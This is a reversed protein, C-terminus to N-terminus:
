KLLSARLASMGIPPGIGGQSCGDVPNAFISATGNLTLTSVVLIFCPYGAGSKNVAGSMTLDAKPLYVLGSIDWTPTGGAYTLNVGSTLAPDQMVAIGQWTGSSPAAINLRGGGTPYHGPTLGAVPSGSFVITLGAGSATSLTHGNLDLVGNEIVLLADGSTITVDATLQIDGCRPTAFPASTATYNGALLNSAPLATKGEQPYNTALAGCPNAPINAAFSTYPDAVPPDHSTAVVGCGNNTGVAGGSKAGLDHGNCDANGNSFVNCGGLDAFPSGNAVLPTAVSSLALICLPAPGPGPGAIATAAVREARAGNLVANGRFGIVSVLYLPLTRGITVQYCPGSQGNPCAVTNNGTVTTNNTGDDFGYKAAVNLAERLYIPKPPAGADLSAKGNTAAALAAADAANQMSRNLLYWFSVEAALGMLAVIAASMLVVWVAALGHEEAGFTRLIRGLARRIAGGAAPGQRRTGTM